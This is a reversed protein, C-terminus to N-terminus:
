PRLQLRCFAFFHGVSNYTLGFLVHPQEYRAKAQCLSSLHMHVVQYIAREDLLGSVKRYALVTLGVYGVEIPVVERVDKKCVGIV